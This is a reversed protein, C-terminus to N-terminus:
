RGTRRLQHYTSRLRALRWNKQMMLPIYCGTTADWTLMPYAIDWLVSPMHAPATSCFLDM